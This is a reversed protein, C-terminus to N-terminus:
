VASWDVWRGERHSRRLADLVTQVGRGDEFTAAQSLAGRPTPEAGERLAAVLHRALLVFARGFIGDPVHRMDERTVPDIADLRELGRADPPHTAEPDRRSGWLRTDEDLRLMGNEGFIELRLGEAAHAVVSVTVSAHIREAGLVLWFAAHDDSDVARRQLSDPVPRDPIFTNETGCARQVPGCMWQLLDIMHSGLAGLVGGGRERQSWWNYPRRPDLRSSVRLVLEIHLPRGIFGDGLLRRLRVLNPCFRLQHDILALRGSRQAAACMSAAQELDCAMPKECLVAIGARLCQESQERHLDVPTTVCVLDVHGEDLVPAISTGARPIDHRRALRRTKDPDHGVLWTIEAEPVLRFAPLQTHLAFGSGVLAIRVPTAM